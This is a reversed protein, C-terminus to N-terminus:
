QDVKQSAEFKLQSVRIQYLINLLAGGLLVGGIVLISKPGYNELLYDLGTSMLIAVFVLGVAGLLVEIGARLRINM